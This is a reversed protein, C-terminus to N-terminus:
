EDQSFFLYWNNKLAKYVRVESGRVVLEKPIGDDLTSLVPDVRTEAYVYGKTSGRNLIGSSSAIMEFRGGWYSVRWVGLERGLKAYQAWRAESLQMAPPYIERSDMWAITFHDHKVMNFLELFKESHRDFISEMRADSPHGCGVVIFGLMLGFRSIKLRM